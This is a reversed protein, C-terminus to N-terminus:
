SAIDICYNCPIYILTTIPKSRYVNHGKFVHMYVLSLIVSEIRTVMIM